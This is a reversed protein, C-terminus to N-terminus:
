DRRRRMGQCRLASAAKSVRKNTFIWKRNTKPSAVVDGVRNVSSALEALAKPIKQLEIHTNSIADDYLPANMLAESDIVFDHKIRKGNGDKFLIKGRFIKRGPRQFFRVSSDVIRSIHASPLLVAIAFGDDECGFYIARGNIDHLTNDWQIKVDHAVGGGFNSIRLLILGPRSQVDFHPYPFPQRKQEELEVVRQAGWASVMSTIVALSAALGAWAEMVGGLISRSSFYAAAVSLLLALGLFIRTTIPSM